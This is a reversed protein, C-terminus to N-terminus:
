TVWCCLTSNAGRRERGWDLDDGEGGGVGVVHM